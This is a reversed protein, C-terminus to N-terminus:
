MDKIEQMVQEVTPIEPTARAPRTVENGEPENIKLNVRANHKMGAVRLLTRIAKATAGEKGIVKGMDSPHITLSLLVGLEDIKREIKVDDPNEVLAKVITELFIKDEM